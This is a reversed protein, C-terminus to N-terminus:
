SKRKGWFVPHFEPPLVHILFRRIFEHSELSYLAEFWRASGLPDPTHLVHLNHYGRPLVPRSASAFVCCCTPKM